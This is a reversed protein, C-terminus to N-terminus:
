IHILSLDYEVRKEMKELTDTEGRLGNIQAWGTIGPKVKHRKMYYEVVDKYEENHACAHPRPGVISMKGQMVNYFQPLEDLSTKRLFRGFPTVRDDERRAQTVQGPAEKHVRMTRFKYVNIRRGDLGHRYQKFLVPGSSTLKIIVAILIILPLSLFFILGGLVRDETEKVFHNPGDLPSCSLDLTYIGGIESAKHNLLRIDSMDPAYRIDVCSHKLSNLVEKVFEGESLPLCIWVEQPSLKDVLLALEQIGSSVPVGLLEDEDFPTGNKVVQVVDYGLYPRNRFNTIANEATRGTGIVIVKKHNLGKERLQGIFAYVFLRFVLTGFGGLLVWMGLWLRSFYDARHSFFLLGILVGIAIGWTSSLRRLMSGRSRGRWSVYLGTFSASVSILLAGLVTVTQYQVSLNIDGFRLFYALLSAAMTCCIDFARAGWVSALDYGTRHTNNLNVGM